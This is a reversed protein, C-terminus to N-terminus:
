FEQGLVFHINSGGRQTSGDPRDFGYGWDVGILGVMPLTVRVGIGASRKLNFPNFDGINQWANGAEAFALAWINTQGQSLIMVRLETALRMFAYGYNYSNGAISGNRYGRLPIMENLYTGMFASNGDGGMYYAGFPSKKYPNYSGIFGLDIRNMLVPTHKTTMPNMLPTFVKGSFRWKHYEIFSYLSKQSINPDSYDVKDFLSYPPTASVSLSFDSGRRTYIPNDISVRSLRLTFSLDNALGDHFGRFTNYVWDNLIYLNYNISGYIQFWNDPWNLRTGLGLQTSIINLSQNPNYANELMSGYDYGYGDYGYGGYGYGYGGYGYGGYGYGYYPNFGYSGFQNNYFRTDIATQRSYSIMASFYNPKKGGFWPDMFQISYNQYYRGNTSANIGLVQGDGQPLFGKYMEPHFLNYISFNTFKLGVMMIVGTQSWGFSMEFKDSRRPVLDFEIDVTGDQPNPIPKPAAKEADFQDLRNIAMYSNMLADRSFLEGPKIYLERRIVNEYILDNGKIIVENITAQPGEVVRFDLYVSDGEIRTEVPDIHAFIYGNNYYINSVADEDTVLRSNLRKQNYIEGAKIGLVNQLYDSPYKTNGVFRYGGIYYKKGENIKIDIQLRKPNSPNRRVTDSIIEVDRYGAEHYRSILNSLDEKYDKQIFKKSSFIELVSPILRSFSFTENTKKMAKRLTNDSLHDNGEFFIDSVKVKAKKDVSILLEVQNKKSLDPKQAIKVEVDSYSKNKFYRIAVERAQDIRNPSLQTGARLGLQKELDERESKKVGAYKVAAIKPRQEVKLELWVENGLEKLIAISANKFFGNRMIRRIADSVQPGPIEILDGKKIGALSLLVSSDYGEAGVVQIDAVKYNHTTAYSVAAAKGPPLSDVATHQGYGYFLGLSFAGLLSLLFKSFPRNNTM